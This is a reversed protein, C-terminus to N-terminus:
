CINKYQVTICIVALLSSPNYFRLQHFLVFTFYDLQIFSYTCSIRNGTCIVDKNLFVATFICYRGNVTYFVNTLCKTKCYGSELM